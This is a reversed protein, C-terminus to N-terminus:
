ADHHEKTRAACANSCGTCGGCGSRHRIAGFLAFLVAFGILSLVTTM